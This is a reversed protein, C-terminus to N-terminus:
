CPHELIRILASLLGETKLRVGISREVLSFPPPHSWLSELRRNLAATDQGSGGLTRHQMVPHGAIGSGSRGIVMTHAGATPVAGSPRGRGGPTPPLGPRPMASAATSASVPSMVSSPRPATHPNPQATPPKWQASGSVLRTATHSPSAQIVNGGQATATQPPISPLLHSPAPSVATSSPTSVTFSSKTPPINKQQTAAIHSRPAFDKEIMPSGATASRPHQPGSVDGTPAVFFPNHQQRTINMAMSSPTPQTPASANMNTYRYSALPLSRRTAINGHRVEEPILSLSLSDALEREGNRTSNSKLHSSRGLVPRARTWLIRNM